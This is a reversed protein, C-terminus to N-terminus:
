RAHTALTDASRLLRECPVRMAIAAARLGTIKMGSHDCLPAADDDAPLDPSTADDGSARLPAAVLPRYRSEGSAGPILVFTTM